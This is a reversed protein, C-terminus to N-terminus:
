FVFKYSLSAQGQWGSIKNSSEPLVNVGRKALIDFMSTSEEGEAVGNGDVDNESEVVGKRGVHHGLRFAM